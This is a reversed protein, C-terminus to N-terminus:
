YLLIVERDGDQPEDEDGEVGVVKDMRHYESHRITGEVVENVKPAVQTKWHDGYNYTHHVPLDPGDLLQHALEHATM